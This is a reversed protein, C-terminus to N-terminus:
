PHLRLPGLCLGDFDFLSYVVYTSDVRNRYEYKFFRRFKPRQYQCKRRDVTKFNKIFDVYRDARNSM